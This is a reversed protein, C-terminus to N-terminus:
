FFFYEIEIKFDKKYFKCSIDKCAKDIGEKKIEYVGNQPVFNTNFWFKFLKDSKLKLFHVQYFQM